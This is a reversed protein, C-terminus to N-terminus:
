TVNEPLRQGKIINAPIPKEEGYAIVWAWYRIQGHILDYDFCGSQDSTPIIEVPKLMGAEEIEKALEVPGPQMNLRNERADQLTNYIWSPEPTEPHLLRIRGTPIVHVERIFLRNIAEVDATGLAIAATAANAATNEMGTSRTIIATDSHTLMWAIILQNITAVYKESLNSLLSLEDPSFMQRGQSFPSYGVFVVGTDRCFPMIDAEAFRNSLNYEMQITSIKNGSIVRAEKLQQMTFNCVGAYRIRKSELLYMLANVTEKLPISPNPWQIQYLDIYDTNMRKLSGEFAKMVGPYSNNLPNFKSGIFIKDRRGCVVRGTIEESLGDEYHEGTDLFTMGLDIGYRLVDERKRIAGETATERRGAGTTGQAVSGIQTGDATTLKLLPTNGSLPM